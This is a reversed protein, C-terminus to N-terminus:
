AVLKRGVKEILAIDDDVEGLVVVEGDETRHLMVVSFEAGEPDIQGLTMAELERLKKALEKRVADVPDIDKGAEERRIQREAKVVGKLGGEAESLFNSLAGREVGVRHAHSLVAAYETLRTKDYDAGFVLKVVPTMPARDQVALGNEAILEEYEAPSEQAALSFDYARGVAAYLAQRSRDERSRATQALERASALYDYLGADEDLEVDEIIDGDPGEPAEVAADEEADGRVDVQLELDIETEDSESAVVAPQEDETVEDHAVHFLDLPEVTEEAAVPENESAFGALDLPEEGTGEEVSTEAEDTLDLPQDAPEDIPAAFTDELPIENASVDEM